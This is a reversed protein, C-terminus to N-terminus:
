FRDYNDMSFFLAQLCSDSDESQRQNNASKSIINVAETITKQKLSVEEFKVYKTTQGGGADLKNM